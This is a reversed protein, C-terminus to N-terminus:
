KEVEEPEMRYTPLVIDIIPHGNATVEMKETSCLEFGTAGKISPFRLNSKPFIICLIYM